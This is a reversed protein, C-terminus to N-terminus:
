TESLALLRLTPGHYEAIKNSVFCFGNLGDARQNSFCLASLHPNDWTPNDKIERLMERIQHEPGCSIPSGKDKSTTRELKIGAEKFAEVALDPFFGKDAKIQDPILIECCRAFSSLFAKEWLKTNKKKPTKLNEAQSKLAEAAKGLAELKALYDTKSVDRMCDALDCATKEFNNQNQGRIRMEGCVIGDNATIKVPLQVEDDRRAYRVFDLEGLEHNMEAIAHMVKDIKDHLPSEVIKIKLAWIRNNIEASKASAIISARMFLYKDGASKSLGARGIAEDTLNDRVLEDFTSAPSPCPCSKSQREKDLLLPTILKDELAQWSLPMTANWRAEQAWRHMRFSSRDLLRGPSLAPIIM